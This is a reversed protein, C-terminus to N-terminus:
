TTSGTISHKLHVICDLVICYLRRKMARTHQIADNFLRWTLYRSDTPRSSTAGVERPDNTVSQRGGIRGISELRWKLEPHDLDTSTNEWINKETIKLRLIHNPSGYSLIKPPCVHYYYRFFCKFISFSVDSAARAQENILKLIKVFQIRSFPLSVSGFSVLSSSFKKVDKWGLDHMKADEGGLHFHIQDCQSLVGREALQM